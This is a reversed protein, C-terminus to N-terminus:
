GLARNIETHAANVVAFIEAGAHSDGTRHPCGQLCGAGTNRGQSYAQFCGRFKMQVITRFNIKAGGGMKGLLKGPIRESMSKWCSNIQEFYVHRGSSRGLSGPTSTANGALTIILSQGASASAQILWHIQAIANM